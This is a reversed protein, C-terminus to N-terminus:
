PLEWIINSLISCTASLLSLGRYNGCDTKDCKKKFFPVIISEKWVEPFEDKNWIFNTLKYIESHITRGGAKNMEASIQDIGPSIHRKLKDIGLEIGFASLEPVLPEATYIETQRVDNVGQVNLFSLFIM